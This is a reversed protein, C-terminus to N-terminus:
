DESLETLIQEVYATSDDAVPAAVRLASEARLLRDEARRIRRKDKAIRDRFKAIAHRIEPVQAENALKLQTRLDRIEGRKKAIRRERRAIESLASDAASEAEAYRALSIRHGAAVSLLDATDGALVPCVNLDPERRLAQAFLARPACYDGVGREWGSRFAVRDMVVGFAACKDAAKPVSELARAARGTKYGQEAWNVAPCSEATYSSACGILFLPALLLPAM